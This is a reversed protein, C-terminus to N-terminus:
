GKPCRTRLAEAPRNRPVRDRVRVPRASSPPALFQRPTPRRTSRLSRTDQLRRASFLKRDRSVALASATPCAQGRSDNGALVINGLAFAMAHIRMQFTIFARAIHLDQYM